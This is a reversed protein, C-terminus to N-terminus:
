DDTGPNFCQNTPIPTGYKFNDVIAKFNSILREGNHMDDELKNEQWERANIRLEEALEPMDMLKSMLKGLEDVNEKEAILACQKKRNFTPTGSTKYVVIPLGLQMAQMMTGSVNDLKCPLVAFRSKQIHSFLDSQKDFFPTFVVNDKLGLVEILKLLEEKIIDSCAGILNLKVTNHTEKVVALAQISDHFGKNLDMSMAFNVFDFEKKTESPKLLEGKCPFGYKLIYTNPCYDRVLEYHMKSYVGIYRLERFLLMETTANDLNVEGYKGRMPNNYVTQCLAYLPYKRIGLVTSSYYSNELGMLLVLDPNIKDIEKKVKKALPNIRVWRERNKVLRKLLNVWQHNLFIYNINGETFAVKLRKMSSHVSIITFDIDSRSSFFDAINTNWIALDNHGENKPKMGLLRRLMNYIKGDDLPLHSRVMANSMNCVMVVKLIKIQEM